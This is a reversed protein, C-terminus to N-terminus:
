WVPQVEGIRTRTRGGPRLVLAVEGSHPEDEQPRIAVLDEPYIGIGTMSIPLRALLGALSFARAAPDALVTAYTRLGAKM